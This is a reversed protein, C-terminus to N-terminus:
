KVPHGRDSLTAVNVYYLDTAVKFQDRGQAWAGSTVIWLDAQSGQLREVVRKANLCRKALADAPDGDAQAPAVYIVHDRKADLGIREDTVVGVQHAHRQRPRAVVELEAIVHVLDHVLLRGLDRTCRGEAGFRPRTPRASTNEIVWTRVLLPWQGGLPRLIASQIQVFSVDCSLLFGFGSLVYLTTPSCTRFGLTGSIGSPFYGTPWIVATSTAVPLVPQDGGNLM